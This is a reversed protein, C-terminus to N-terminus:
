RFFLSFRDILLKCKKCFAGDFEGQQAEWKDTDWHSIGRGCLTLCFPHCCYSNNVCCVWRQLIRSLDNEETSEGEISKVIFGQLGHQIVHALKESDPYNEVRKLESVFDTVGLKKKKCNQYLFSM